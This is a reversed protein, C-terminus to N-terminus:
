PLDDEEEDWGDDLDDDPDMDDYDVYREWENLDYGSLDEESEELDELDDLEDEYEEDAQAKAVKSPDEYRFLEFNLESELLQLQDLAEELVAAEDDDDCEELLASLKREVAEGGIQSLAWIIEYRLEADEARDLMKLLVLRAPQLRLEGAAHVAQVSVSLQPHRVHKLVTEEWQEDASHGMAFLASELWEAEHRNAALRIWASVQELSSYALSELARRKVLDSPDRQYARILYEEIRHLLENSLKDLEGLLVYPGLANAAAGRLRDAAQLDELLRLYVPVLTPDEAEFLLDIAALQVESDSDELALKGVRDFIQLSDKEAMEALDHILNRRRDVPIEPWAKHLVRLDEIGLDSFAFLRTVPFPTGDDKLLVILEHISISDGM